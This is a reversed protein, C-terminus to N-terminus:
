YNNNHSITFLVIAFIVSSICTYVMRGLTYNAPYAHLSPQYNAPFMVSVINGALLSIHYKVLFYYHYKLYIEPYKEMLFCFRNTWHVM